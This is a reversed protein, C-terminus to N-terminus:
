RPEYKSDSPLEGGQGGRGVARGGEGVGLGEWGQDGASVYWGFLTPDLGPPGRGLGRIGRLGDISQPKWALLAQLCNKRGRAVM